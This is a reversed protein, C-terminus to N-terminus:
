LTQARNEVVAGSLYSFGISLLGNKPLILLLNDPKVGKFVLLNAEDM